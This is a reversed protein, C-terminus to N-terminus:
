PTRGTMTSPAASTPASGALPVRLRVETGGPKSEVELEAGMLQARERMTVLGFGSREPDAPTFGVGDDRVVVDLHHESQTLRIMVRRARAHRAINAVAEQVIRFLHLEHVSPLLKDIEDVTLRLDLGHREAFQSTHTRLSEELGASLVEAPQYEHVVSGVSATIHQLTTHIADLTPTAEPPLTGAQQELDALVRGVSAIAGGVDEYLERAVREREAALTQLMRRAFTKRALQLQKRERIDRAVGFLLDHGGIEMRAVCLEIPIILGDKSRSLTDFPPLFTGVPMGAVFADFRERPFEPNVDSVTMDLLEERTYGTLSVIRNNAYLFRGHIDWLLFADNSLDAMQRFIGLDLKPDLQQGDFPM